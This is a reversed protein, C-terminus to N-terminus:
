SVAKKENKPAWGEATLALENTNFVAFGLDTNTVTQRFFKLVKEGGLSKPKCISKKFVETTVKRLWPVQQPMRFSIHMTFKTSFTQFSRKVTLVLEM